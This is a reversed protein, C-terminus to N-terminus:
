SGIGVERLEKAKARGVDGEEASLTGCRGLWTATLYAVAWFLCSHDNRTLRLCLITTGSSWWLHIKVVYYIYIYM